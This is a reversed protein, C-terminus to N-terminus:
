GTFAPQAQVVDAPDRAVDDPQAEPFTNTIVVDCRDPEGFNAQASDSGPIVDCADPENPGAAYTM